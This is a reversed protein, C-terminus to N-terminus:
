LGATAVPHATGADQPHPRPLLAPEPADGPVAGYTAQEPPLLGDATRRLGGVAAGVTGHPRRPATDRVDDRRLVPLAAPAAPIRGGAAQDGPTGVGSSAAARRGRGIVGPWLASLDGAQPPHRQRM